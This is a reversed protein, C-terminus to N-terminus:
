AVPPSEGSRPAVSETFWLNGDPGSTIGELLLSFTEPLTFEALVGGTTIRGIKINQETFWLNGDPGSTIAVPFSYATPLAFETIVGGTTIRGINNGTQEAFWLNGDPGNTIGLPQGGATPVSFEHITVQGLLVASLALLIGAARVAGCGALRGIAADAKTM